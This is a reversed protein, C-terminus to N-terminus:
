SKRSICLVIASDDELSIDGKTTFFSGTMRNTLFWMLSEPGQIARASMHLLVLVLSVPAEKSCSTLSHKLIKHSLDIVKRVPVHNDVRVDNCSRKASYLRSRECQVFMLMNKDEMSRKEWRLLMYELNKLVLGGALAQTATSRGGGVQTLSSQM